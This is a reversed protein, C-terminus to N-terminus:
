GSSRLFTNPDLAGRLGSLSWPQPMSLIYGLPPCQIGRDDKKWGSARVLGTAVSDSRWSPATTITRVAQYYVESILWYHTHSVMVRWMGRIRDEVLLRTNSLAIDWRHEHEWDMIEKVLKEETRGLQFILPSIVLAGQDPHYQWTQALPQASMEPPVEIQLYANRDKGM